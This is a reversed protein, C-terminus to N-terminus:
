ASALSIRATTDAVSVIVNIDVDVGIVFVEDVDDVANGPMMTLLMPMMLIPMM